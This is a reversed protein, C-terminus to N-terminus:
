VRPTPDQDLHADVDARFREADIRGAGALAAQAEEAPVFQRRRVPVLEGVPVGNRTVVFSEGHDLARM